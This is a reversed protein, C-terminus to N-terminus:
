AATFAVFLASLSFASNYKAARRRPQPIWNERKMNSKCLFYMSYLKNSLELCALDRRYLPVSENSQIQASQICGEGIQGETTIGARLRSRSQALQSSHATLAFLFLRSAAAPELGM